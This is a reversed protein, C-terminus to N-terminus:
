FDTAWAKQYGEKGKKLGWANSVMLEFYADDDISASIYAYCEM